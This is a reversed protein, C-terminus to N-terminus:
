LLPTALTVHSGFNQLMLNKIIAGLHDFGCVEFKIRM